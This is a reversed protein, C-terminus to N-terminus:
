KFHVKSPDVIRAWVESKIQVNPDLRALTKNIRILSYICEPFFLTEYQYDLMRLLYVSMDFNGFLEVDPQQLLLSDHQFRSWRRRKSAVVHEPNRNMVLFTDGRPRFKHWISVFVPSMLLYCFKTVEYSMAAFQGPKVAPWDYDDFPFTPDGLYQQYFGCILDNDFGGQVEEDWLTSGLDYGSEELARAILSTGSRQTGTVVLM